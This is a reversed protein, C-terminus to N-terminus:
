SIAPVFLRKAESLVEDISVKDVKAFVEEPTLIEPLFLVQEGFFSTVDKTDELALALHGKIYEKAKQLERNSISYGAGRHSKLNSIKYHEELVVKIAEDARKPDVGAYTGVYGTEQSRDASTRISYALGRRERVEIFLRSSMGGGLITALVGQAYRNKYNRGDGMFGIIFHAQDSKKNKIKVQPKNQVSEFLGGRSHGLGSGLHTGLHTFEFYKKALELSKKEFIGGAITVLM